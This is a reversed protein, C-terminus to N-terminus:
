PTENDDGAAQWIGSEDEIKIDVMQGPQARLAATMSRAKQVADERTPYQGVLAADRRLIWPGRSSTNFPVYLTTRQL